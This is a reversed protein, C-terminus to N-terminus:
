ISRYVFRYEFKINLQKNILKSQVDSDYGEVDDDLRKTLRWEM